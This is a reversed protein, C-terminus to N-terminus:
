QTEGTFAAMIAARHHSEALSKAEGLSYGHGLSLDSFDVLYGGEMFILSYRGSYFHKQQVTTNNSHKEWVLPAIMDPLAELMADAIAEDSTEPEASSICQAIQDRM